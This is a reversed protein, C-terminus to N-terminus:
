PRTADHALRAPGAGGRGDLRMLEDAVDLLVQESGPPGMLQIARPLGDLSGFPIALATSDAINGPVTCSLLMSNWNSRGIRPPPYTCVPAVVIWGRDWLEGFHDRIAQAQALATRPNRYLTYRGLAILLLLEATAARFRRDGFLGRLVVASLVGSVAMRPTISPDAEFLEELHSAWISNFVNRVHRNDPLGHDHSIEPVARRLRREVDAGFRPWRGPPNPEYVMAGRLTFPRGTGRRIRPRAVDLVARMQDTTSTFPGQGCMWELARPVRPFLGDIPWTESSLRMGLIGCFAAPMRVSGGIDTGWDFAVLRDAVAAAAGGSSGGATRRLDHPNRTTGGVWSCSEPPLGLDPLNTKGLLVAGADRFAEFVRSDAASRRDRHRWSGGTTPLCLTEWEDKLGFPVGHLSSRPAESARLGHDALAQDLRTTVFARLVPNRERVRAVAEPVALTFPSITVPSTPRPAHFSMPVTGM